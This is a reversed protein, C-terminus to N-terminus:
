QRREVSWLTLTVDDMDLPIRQTPDEDEYVAAPIDIEAV